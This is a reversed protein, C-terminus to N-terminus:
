CSWPTLTKLSNTAMIKSIHSPIQQIKCHKHELLYDEDDGEHIGEVIVLQQMGTTKLKWPSRM